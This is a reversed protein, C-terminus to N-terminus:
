GDIKAETNCAKNWKDWNFYMNDKACINGISTSIRHKEVKDKIARIVEALAKYDKRTM